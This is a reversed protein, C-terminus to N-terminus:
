EYYKLGKVSKKIILPIYQLMEESAFFGKENFCKEGALSHIVVGAAAAKEVSAGFALLGGIIGSLIDGSGATALAPNPKDLIMIRGSPLGIWTTHSKLVTVIGSAATFKKLYPSPNDLIDAIDAKILRSFEGPHPTIICNKNKIIIKGSKFFGSKDLISSLHTIGDADIVLPKQTESLLHKLFDEKHKEMGWGPGTIISNYNDISPQLSKDPEFINLMVSSLAGSLGTHIDSDTFLTVLGSLSNLAAKSCLVAAGSKGRSGAYVATHGRSNKYSWPSPLEPFYEPNDTDILIYEPNDIEILSLPFGAGAFAIRGCRKRSSPFYLSIKPLGITITLDASVSQWSSKFNDSIGSPVDLSCVFSGTSNIVKCIDAENQRLEGNLGTGTIGDIIISSSKLERVSKNRDEKWSLIKIGLKRCINLNIEAPSQPKFTGTLIITGDRKQLFHHRALVLADGGNSGSGCVFVARNSALSPLINKELYRYCNIGANEMLLISPYDFDKQAKKDIEAMQTSDLPFNYETKRSLFDAPDIM